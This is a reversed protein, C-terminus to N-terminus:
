KAADGAFADKMSLFDMTSLLTTPPAVIAPTSPIHMTTGGLSGSTSLDFIWNRKMEEDHDEVFGSPSPQSSLVGAGVNFKVESVSTSTAM